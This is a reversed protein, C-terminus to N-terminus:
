EGGGLMWSIGISLSYNLPSTHDINLRHFRSDLRIAIRRGKLFRIGGGIALDTGSRIDEYSSM